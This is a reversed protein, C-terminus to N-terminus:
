VMDPGIADASLYHQVDLLMDDAEGMIEVENRNIPGWHQRLYRMGIATVYAHFAPAFKSLFQYKAGDGTGYNGLDNSDPSVDKQFVPLFGNPNDWFASLLPPIESSCSRINWSTQFMGAEAEDASTNSASMDRGECYKGSSERMGLGLIMVFLHRLTDIGDETNYMAMNQFRSRYWTLADKDANNRDAQAMVEATPDEEALASAALAFCLAVGAIYGKPAVGRDRWSYLAIASTEAIEVITDIQNQSLGNNGAAKRNDLADLEAWTKPGVIGDATLGCAAQFGKVGGDTTPGFDGDAPVIGLSEQVNQVHPGVDGQGITPRQGPPEPAPEPEPPTPGPQISQGTIAESIALCIDEFYDNYLNADAKSDVFCVEILIAPKSTNNLFFLDSRYKPGRNKFEGAESILMSVKGSLEAQTVYLCETGMPSTTTQYANFHISVDLERSQANHWNVIRNLNENQSTSVTDHFTKVPVGANKLLAGVQDVVRTAEDVEDLYGAAGRCKTSHGSSIAFSRYTM